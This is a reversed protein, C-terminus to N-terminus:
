ELVLSRRTEMQGLADAFTVTSPSRDPQSLVPVRGGPLLVVVRCFIYYVFYMSNLLNNTEKADECTHSPSQTVPHSAQCTAGGGFGVGGILPFKNTM